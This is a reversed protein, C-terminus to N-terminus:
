TNNVHMLSAVYYSELLVWLRPNERFKERLEYWDLLVILRLKIQQRYCKDPGDLTLRLAM